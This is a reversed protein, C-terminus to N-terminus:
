KWRREYAGLTTTTGESLASLARQWAPDSQFM